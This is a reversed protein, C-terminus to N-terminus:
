PHYAISLALKIKLMYFLHRWFANTFVKNRDCVVSNPVGHLKVVNDLIVQAVVQASFIPM